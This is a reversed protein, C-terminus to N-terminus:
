TIPASVARLEEPGTADVLDRDVDDRHKPLPVRINSWATSSCTVSSTTSKRGADSAVCM